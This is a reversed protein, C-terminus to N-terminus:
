NIWVGTKTEPPALPSEVEKMGDYDEPVTVSSRLWSIDEGHIEFDGDYLFKLMVAERAVMVAMDMSITVTNEVIVTVTDEDEEMDDIHFTITQGPNHIKILEAKERDM